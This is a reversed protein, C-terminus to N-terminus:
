FKRLVTNNKKEVEVKDSWIFSKNKQKIERISFEVPYDNENFWAMGLKIFGSKKPRYKKVLTLTITTKENTALRTLDPFNGNCTEGCFGFLNSELIFYASKSCTMIWFGTSDPGENKISLFLTFTRNTCDVEAKNKTISDVTLSLQKNNPQCFSTYSSFLISLTIFITKM